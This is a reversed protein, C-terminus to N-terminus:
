RDEKWSRANGKKQNGFKGKIWIICDHRQERGLKTPRTPRFLWEGASDPSHNEEGDLLKTKM